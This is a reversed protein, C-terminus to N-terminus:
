SSSSISCEINWWLETIQAYQQWQPLVTDNRYLFCHTGNEATPLHWYHYSSASFPGVNTNCAGFWAICHAYPQSGGQNSANKRLSSPEDDQTTDSHSTPYVLRRVRQDHNSKLTKSVPKTFRANTSQNQGKERPINAWPGYVDVGLREPIGKRKTMIHMLSTWTITHTAFKLVLSGERALLGIGM